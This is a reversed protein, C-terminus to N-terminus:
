APLNMMAGWYCTFLNIFVGRMGSLHEASQLEGLVAMGAECSAVSEEQTREM